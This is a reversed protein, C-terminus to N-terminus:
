HPKSYEAMKSKPVPSSRLDNSPYIQNSTQIMEWIMLRTCKTLLRRHSTQLYPDPPADQTTGSLPKWVPDPCVNRQKYFHWVDWLNAMCINICNSLRTTWGIITKSATSVGQPVGLRPSGRYSTRMGSPEELGPHERYREREIYIYIYIYKHTCVYM